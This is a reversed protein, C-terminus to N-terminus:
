SRRPWGASDSRMTLSGRSPRWRCSLQYAALVLCLAAMATWLVTPGARELIQTGVLPAAVTAIGWSVGYVALYRGTGGPPALDAVQAHARGLILLDGLSWVVTATLSTPLTHAAAFGALGAALLLSCATTSFASSREFPALGCSSRTTPSGQCTCKWPASSESATPHLAPQAVPSAM